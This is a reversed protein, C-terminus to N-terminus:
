MLSSVAQTLLITIVHQLTIFYHSLKQTLLEHNEINKIGHTGIKLIHESEKCKFNVTVRPEHTKRYIRVPYQLNQRTKFYSISLLQAPWARSKIKISQFTYKCFIKFGQLSRLMCINFIYVPTKDPKQM